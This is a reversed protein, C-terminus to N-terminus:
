YRRLTEPVNYQEVILKWHPPLNWMGEGRKGGADRILEVLAPDRHGYDVASVAIDM